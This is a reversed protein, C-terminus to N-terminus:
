PIVRMLRGEDPATERRAPADLLGVQNGFAVWGERNARSFLEVYPGEFMTEIRDYQEDPKQSHKRRPARIADMPMAEIFDRVSRVGSPIVAEGLMDSVIPRRLQPNGKTLLLCPELNKRTGYGGGFAYKGTKPNFKIWEWALGAYELGWAKIVTPWHMMLPWTMWSFVAADDALLASVPLACIEELSLCDYHNQPAKGQGKDSWHEFEWPADILMTKAGGAPRIEAFKKTIAALDFNTSFNKKIETMDVAAAGQGFDFSM